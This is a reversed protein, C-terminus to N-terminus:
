NILIKRFMGVQDRFLIMKFKKFFYWTKEQGSESLSAYMEEAEYGFSHFRQYQDFLVSTPTKSNIVTGSESKWGYTFVNEKKHKFSFAYGSYTTGFDIAISLIKSM